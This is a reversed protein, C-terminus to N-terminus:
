MTQPGGGVGGRPDSSRGGAKAECGGFRHLAEGVGASQRSTTSSGRGDSGSAEERARCKAGGLGHLARRVGAVQEPAARGGPQGVSSCDPLLSGGGESSRAAIGPGVNQGSRGISARRSAANRHG